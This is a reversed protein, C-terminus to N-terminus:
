NLFAERNNKKSNFETLTSWEVSKKPVSNSVRPKKIIVETPVQPQKATNSSKRKREGNDATKLTFHIDSSTATFPTREDDFPM